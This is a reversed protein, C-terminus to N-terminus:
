NLKKINITIMDSMMLQQLTIEYEVDSFTYDEKQGVQSFGSKLLLEIYNDFADEDEAQVVVMFQNDSMTLASEVTGQEFPPIDQPLASPWNGDIAQPHMEDPAVYTGDLWIIFRLQNLVNANIEVATNSNLLVVDIIKGNQNKNQKTKEFGIQQLIEVYENINNDSEFICIIYLSGDHSNEVIEIECGSPQPFSLNTPWEYHPNKAQNIADKESQSFKASAIDLVAVDEGQEVTIEYNDRIFKVADYEGKEERQKSNDAFGEQVYIIFEEKYGADKMIYIYEELDDKTVSNFFIRITYDDVFILSIEGKLQPIAKPIYDPWALAEGSGFGAENFNYSDSTEEANKINENKDANKDRKTDANTDNEICGAVFLLVVTSLLAILRKVTQM